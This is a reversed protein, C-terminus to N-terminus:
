PVTNQLFSIQETTYGKDLLHETLIDTYKLVDLCDIVMRLQLLRSVDDSEFKASISQLYKQQDGYPHGCSDLYEMARRLIASPKSDLSNLCGDESKIVGFDVLRRILDKSRECNDDLLVKIRSM